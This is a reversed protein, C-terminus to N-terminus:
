EAPLNVLYLQSSNIGVPFTSLTIILWTNIPCVILSEKQSFDTLQSYDYKGQNM